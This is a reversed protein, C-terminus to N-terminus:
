AVPWLITDGDVFQCLVRMDAFQELTIVRSQPADPRRDNGVGDLNIFKARVKVIFHRCVLSLKALINVASALSHFDVHM